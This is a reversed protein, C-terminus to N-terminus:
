TAVAMVITIIVGLVALGAGFTVIDDLYLGDTDHGVGLGIVVFGVITFVWGITTM